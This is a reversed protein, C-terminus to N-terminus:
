DNVDKTRDVTPYIVFIPIMTTLSIAAIIFDGLAPPIPQDDDRQKIEIVAEKYTKDRKDLHHQLKSAYYERDDILNVLVERKLHKHTHGDPWGQVMQHVNAFISNLFKTSGQLTFFFSKNLLM